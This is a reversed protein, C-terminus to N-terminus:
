KQHIEDNVAIHLVTHLEVFYTHGWSILTPAM